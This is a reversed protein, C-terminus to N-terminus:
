STVRVVLPSGPRVPEEVSSLPAGLSVMSRPPAWTPPPATLRSNDWRPSCPRTGQGLMSILCPTMSPLTSNLFWSTGRDTSRLFTEKRGRDAETQSKESVARENMDAWARPGNRMWFLGSQFIQPIM